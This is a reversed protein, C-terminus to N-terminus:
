RSTIYSSLLGLHGSWKIVNASCRLISSTKCGGCSCKVVAASIVFYVSFNINKYLASCFCFLSFIVSTQSFRNLFSFHAVVRCFRCLCLDTQINVWHPLPKKKKKKKKKKKARLIVRLSYFACVILTSESWVARIRLNIQTKAPRVLRITPKTTRQSLRLNKLYFLLWFPNGKFIFFM